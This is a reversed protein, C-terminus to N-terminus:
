DESKVCRVSFGFSKYNDNRTLADDSKLFCYRANKDDLTSASWFYFYSGELSFSGDNFRTGSPLGNFGSINTGNSKEGWGTTSKLKGGAVSEGGLVDILTTLEKDNPVHWGIPALGRQDHVAYWNYLKGYKKGNLTDNDYYCWAPKGDKGANEWDTKSKVEPIIDGNRFVSVNLNETMWEQTKIKISKYFVKDTSVSKSATSGSEVKTEVSKICRVSFGYSKYNNNRVLAKNLNLVFYKANKSDYSSASWCYFYSGGLSFSGDTDRTGSPLGSFGSVNTGKSKDEWINTSKLKEGAVSEGGLADFLTTLENDNPTHWGSPALGREDHVAYWNYLKGYKKGNVTDNDYYCWAPKGDTGAKEWESKTRVEPIIDGNRFVSVNLNESMWEQTGIKVSKYIVSDTKTKVQANISRIGSIFFIICLCLLKITKVNTKM